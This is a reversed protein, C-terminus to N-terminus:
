VDEKWLSCIHPCKYNLLMAIFDLECANFIKAIEEAKGLTVGKVDGSEIKSIYQQTVGIRKALQKQTLGKKTRM